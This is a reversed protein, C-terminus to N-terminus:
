YNKKELMKSYVEIDTILLTIGSHLQDIRPTLGSVTKKYNDKLSLLNKTSVRNRIKELSQLKLNLEGIQL